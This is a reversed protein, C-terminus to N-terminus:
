DFRPPCVAFDDGTFRLRLGPAGLRHAFLVTIPYQGPQLDIAVSIPSLGRQAEVGALLREDAFVWADSTAGLVLQQNGRREVRLWAAWKVAFFAPDAAHGEDVPFWAGGLDLSPDTREFVLGAPDWWDLEAPDAGPSWEAAALVDPHEADLNYYQGSWAARCSAWDPPRGHADVERGPPEAVPSPPPEYVVYETCAASLLLASVPLLRRM